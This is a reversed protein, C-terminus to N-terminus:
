WLRECRGKWYAALFSGPLESSLCDGYYNIEPLLQRGDPDFFCRLHNAGISRFMRNAVEVMEDRRAPCHKAAIESTVIFRALVDHDRMGSIYSILPDGFKWQARPLLETKPLPRWTDDLANVAFWYYHHFDEPMGFKWDSWWKPLFEAMRERAFPAGTEVIIEAAVAVFRAHGVTEWCLFEGPQLLHRAIEFMASYRIVEARGKDAFQQRARARLGDIRTREPWTARNMWWEFERLYVSSKTFSYACANIMAYIANYSDTERKQDWTRGFYNLVYKVGRWYDAFSILMEEIRRREDADAIKHYTWLGWCADLYQDGSTQVSPRFGYPKGMWGPKGAREGMRYILDLSRFARRAQERAARSGTAQYRFSQATLFLGSATISNEGHLYDWPGDLKMSGVDADKWIKGVFDAATFPRISEADMRMMSYMIGSPSFAVREYLEQILEVKRPISSEKLEALARGTDNGFAGRTACGSIASGALAFGGVTWTARQFFERRTLRATVNPPFNM